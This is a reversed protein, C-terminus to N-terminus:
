NEFQSKQFSVNVQLVKGNRQFIDRSIEKNLKLDKIKEQVGNSLVIEVSNENALRYVIPTQCYTFCLANEKILLTKKDGNIDYYNFEQTTTLFDEKKLSVPSFQIISEKVSIGLESFRCLIDEKVQGTMGPQQAGKSAPTHSYPDTPFAGYLVPTKHIGIGEKIDYYQSILAQVIIEDENNQIARTCTEQVSLLLKSVMHWYISGLGEYGFFTGSRGTFSKHNFIKEFINLILNKDKEVLTKYKIEPLTNLASKLSEANNFNGNFHYNGLIDKVIIQTNNDKVLQNLLDSKEVEQKPINNKEFFRPLKKNPYLIYSNQDERYLDSNKLSYILALSEISTIKTSALVAVQGELMLPLHAISITNDNEVTMLNYSHYLNDLRKNADISHDFFKLAINFFAVLEKKTIFGKAGSHANLYIKSRYNSGANGLGDIISKRDKDSIKGALLAEYQYFVGEVEHFFVKLEESVKFENIHSNNIKDKFFLIYRRLYYLTVMSIGNGVLANNADNWEPRQTNLWIGAEPIFNSIKALATVLLKEILNVKYISDNRDRLLAGDAGLEKKRENILHDLKHDFVITDKPKNLIDSYSKIKYPVNAFVFIDLDFFDALKDPYVNESFELFKLLYVIQHDGWYGIFSWPDNPEIVEWEFGDKTVRYPNYGEFTSANLFKHIMGNIFEPYSYSLAEWNQFIDRWNGQYDLIKSGDIENRTNISFKNWPRSPDGHRRSFKLPMYEYCLRKFDSNQNQAVIENLEHLSIIAPLNKLLNNFEAYLNKNAKSIYCLFDGSEIQYNNDFIGGRMINFLINSFHRTNQLPDNTLQLGDAAATLKILNETGLDVDSLVAKTLEKKSKLQETIEVLEGHGQNVNAVIIWRKESDAKLIIDTSIFYAGKEAKIETEQSVAIGKEFNSLQLSSILYTANDIGASWAINAKLSESPEPKDVIIASLAFTALGSEAELENKKYADALNSYSNQLDSSLGNPLINQIGDLLTVRSPFKSHNKLVSKRVFGYLNSSNWEYQFSLGLEKNIEEFIIKNGYINKYLNRKISYLGEYKTSFPEWLFIKDELQVLFISKSGTIEASETIKDDTYYPFLALDSNKRGASIGGNSSVFMWHNSDSVISMFFPRLTDSNSIKYFLENDITLYEGKVEKREFSARTNGIFLKKPNM